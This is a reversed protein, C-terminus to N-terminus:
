TLCLAARTRPGAIGDPELGNQAQFLMVAARTAADFRGSVLLPKRHDNLRSQLATVDLGHAGTDLHPSAPGSVSEGKWKRWWATGPLCSNARNTWGQLFTGYNVPNQEALNRYFTLRIRHVERVAMEDGVRALWAKYAAITQPGVAGDDKVGALRQAFLIAQRPGSGWGIDVLVDTPPCWELKDLGTGNYFRTVAIDAAEDLTVSQMDAATLSSAPVGRHQALVAPTVGRMTGLNRGAVWNGKDRPDAQYLGEWAAIHHSMAERVTLGM